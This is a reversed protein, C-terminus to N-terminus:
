AAHRPESRRFKKSPNVISARPKTSAALPASFQKARPTTWPSVSIFIAAIPPLPKPLNWQPSFNRHSLRDRRGIVSMRVGDRLYGPVNIRLFEALINMRARIENASRLANDGSCAYLTLTDIGLSAAASVIPRVNTAGAAVGASAPQGRRAAWRTCGDMIIAVHLPLAAFAPPASRQPIFLKENCLTSM